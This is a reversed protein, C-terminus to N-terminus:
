LSIFDSTRGDEGGDRKSLEPESIDVYSDGLLGSETLVNEFTVERARFGVTNMNALNNSIYNMKEM